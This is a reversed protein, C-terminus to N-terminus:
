RAFEEYLKVAKNMEKLLVPNQVYIDELLGKDTEKSKLVEDVSYKFKKWLKAVKKIQKLVVKNKTSPLKM